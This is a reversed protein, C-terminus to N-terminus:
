SNITKSKHGELCRVAQSGEVANRQIGSPLDLRDGPGFEVSKGLKPLGFEISGSVVYVVKDYAQIEQNRDGPSISWTYPM